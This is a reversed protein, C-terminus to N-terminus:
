SGKVQVGAEERLNGTSTDCWLVGSGQSVHMCGSLAEWPKEWKKKPPAGKGEM